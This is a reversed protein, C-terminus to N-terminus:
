LKIVRTNCLRDHLTRGEKDFCAMFFGIGLIVGSLIKALPRAFAQGTSVPSGDPRVVKVKGAMKGWTAGYKAVLVAEYIYRIAFSSIGMILALALAESNSFYEQGIEFPICIINMVIADAFVCGFRLLVRAYKLEGTGAGGEELGRVM